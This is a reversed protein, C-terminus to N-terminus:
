GAERKGRAEEWDRRFGQLAARHDWFRTGLMARAKTTDLSSDRPRRALWRGSFEEMRAPRVLEAPLGLARAVDRAFEYRSMRPGAVHLVGLPKLEVIEALAEALFRNYTPSVYQDVLARVEEGRTLREAVYEAFSKKSGGVGYIASPRVVTYLLDSARVLEEAVLKTLGYYNVPAPTDTERYLGKEGDFVYDTSVYVLHANVVRAARVISRTAGVNVRWAAERDRECGDVDTMAAAHIIAHPRTKLVLDELRVWDTVDLRRPEVGELAPPPHRRYVAVVRHGRAALAEVLRSGLLGGAGTVLVVQQAM